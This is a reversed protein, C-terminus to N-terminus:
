NVDFCWYKKEIGIRLGLSQDKAYSSSNVIIFKVNQKKFIQSFINVKLISNFLIQKSLLNIKKNLESDDLDISKINKNLNSSKSVLAVASITRLNLGELIVDEEPTNISDIIEISEKKNFEKFSKM